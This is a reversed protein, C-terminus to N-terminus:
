AGAAAVPAFPDFALERRPGGITGPWRSSGITDVFPWFAEPDIPAALAIDRATMRMTDLRATAEGCMPLLKAIPDWPSGLLELEGEVNERQLPEFATRVTVVHPPFDYAKEAGGVARSVKVWWEREEHTSPVQVAGTAKGHFEIFTYGQHSCRAHVADGLRFYEIEAPYKPQGNMAKSIYIASEQDIGYGITYYGKTGRYDADVNILVGFESEDLVAVRYISLHVNSEDSADIGPPLLAAICAPDTPYDIKLFPWGDIEGPNTRLANGNAAM